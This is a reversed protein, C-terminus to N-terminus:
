QRHYRKQIQDIARHFEDAIDAMSLNIYQLTMRSDSHGMMTQLIPLRVGARTMDAGFTHRFRHPNAQAINPHLRRQRFLSRLGAPTMPRGRKKGQLVVFLASEQIKPPREWLLYSSVTQLILEPLPLVREKNGKGRVKLRSEEFCCDAIDISLVERSRLGCLLMLYVISLDRYRRLRRLFLRVQEGTLPEVIRRPTKVSLERTGRKGMHHLGLNQERGSGRYHPAPLSVGESLPIDKKFLFRYLLRCVLLRRNISSSHIGITQQGRIFELLKPHTVGALLLKEEEMWRYLALLDYAYARITQSSLGRISLAKLFRNVESLPGQRQSILVYM